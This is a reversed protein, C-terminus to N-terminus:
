RLRSANSADAIQGPAVQELLEDSAKRVLKGLAQRFAAIGTLVKERRLDARGLMRDARELDDARMRFAEEEIATEDLQHQGLLESVKARALSDNGLWQRALDEIARERAAYDEFDENWVQTLIKILEECFVGNVIDAKLHLYRSVEWM